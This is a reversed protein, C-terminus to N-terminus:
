RKRLLSRAPIMIQDSPLHKVLQAVWTGGLSFRLGFGHTLWKASQAVWAGRFMLIKFTIKTFQKRLSGHKLVEEPCPQMKKRVGSGLM